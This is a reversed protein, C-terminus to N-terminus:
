SSSKLHPIKGSLNANNIIRKLVLISWIVTVFSGWFFVQAVAPLSFNFGSFIEFRNLGKIKLGSFITSVLALVGPTAITAIYSFIRGDKDLNELYKNQTRPMTLVLIGSTLSYTILGGTCIATLQNDEIKFNFRYLFVGIVIGILNPMIFFAVNKQNKGM